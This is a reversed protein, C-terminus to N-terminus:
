LEYSKIEVEAPILEPCPLNFSIKIFIRIPRMSKESKCGERENEERQLSRSLRM